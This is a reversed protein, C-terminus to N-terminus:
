MPKLDVNVLEVKQFNPTTQPINKDLESHTPPLLLKVRLNKLADVFDQMKKQSHV